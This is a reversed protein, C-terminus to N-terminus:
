EVEFLFAVQEIQGGQSVAILAKWTKLGTACRPIVGRGRYGGSTVETLKPQNNGMFMGPMSLDLLISAGSVPTGGRMLTVLFALEQMAKVPRPTVDLEIKMGSGTMKICPASNINCDIRDLSGAPAVGGPLVVLFLSIVTCLIGNPGTM